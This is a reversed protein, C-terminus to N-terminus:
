TVIIFFLITKDFADAVVIDYVARRVPNTPAESDGMQVDDDENADKEDVETVGKAEAVGKVEAAVGKVDKVETVNTAVGMEEDAIGDTEAAGSAESLENAGVGNPAEPLMPPLMPDKSTPESNAEPLMPPKTQDNITPESDPEPLKPPLVPDKPTEKGNGDVDCHDSVKGQQNTSNEVGKHEDERGSTDSGPLTLSEDKRDAPKQELPPPSTRIKQEVANNQQLSDDPAKAEEAEGQNALRELEQLTEDEVNLILGEDIEDILADDEDELANAEPM